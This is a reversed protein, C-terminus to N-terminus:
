ELAKAIGTRNGHDDILAQEAFQGTSSLCFAFAAGLNPPLNQLAGYFAAYQQGKLQMAAASADLVNNAFESLFVVKDPHENCFAQLDQVATQYGTGDAGWYFHACLFDADRLATVAEDLFDRWYYRNPGALYRTRSPSLGPWGFKAGPFRPRLKNTICTFFDAFERGNQWYVRLGEDTLNPENHVEFYRLGANYAATLPGEVSSIFYDAAGAVTTGAAAPRPQPMQVFLRAIVLPVMGQLRAMAPVPHKPVSVKVAQMHTAAVTQFATETWAWDEWDAPGHVGKLAHWGNPLTAFQPAPTAEALEVIKRSIVAWQEAPFGAPKIQTRSMRFPRARNEPPVALDQWGLSTVLTWGDAIGLQPALKFLLNTVDQNVLGAAPNPDPTINGLLLPAPDVVKAYCYGDLGLTPHCVNLHLHSGSSNGTSGALGLVQGQAVHDGPQLGAAFASLHGYLLIYGSGDDLSYVLDNGYAETGTRGYGDWVHMSVITGPAVAVVPTGLPAPLDAGEHNGYNRPENFPHGIKQEGGEVPWVWPVIGAPVLYWRVACFATEQDRPAADDAANQTEVRIQPDAPDFDFVGLPAWGNFVSAQNVVCEQPAQGTVGHVYYRAKTATAHNDPVYVSVQYRGAQPLAPVWRAWVDPDTRPSTVIAMFATEASGTAGQFNQMTHAHPDFYGWQIQSPAVVIEVVARAVTGM